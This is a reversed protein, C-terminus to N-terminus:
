RRMSPPPNVNARKMCAVRRCVGGTQAINNCGKTSCLKINIKARKMCAARKCVGGKHARSTCGKTSCLKINIKIKARKMCAARKCVGGTQAINNCGKTSCRKINIKARKMCAARRCVGGTQAINNCGKTSCLKINIKARNLCAARNCVGGRTAINSCGKTSCLKINIKIKARKMCEVRRCVGGRQAINNCGKTSCRKINIKARKMCAARKCVGGKHARSTCGKTSCLKINIKARKLCAARNCVGGRTAINSCGKTSCRKKEQQKLHRECMEENEEAYDCCGGKWQCPRLNAIANMLDDVFVEEEAEEKKSNHHPLLASLMFSEGMTLCYDEYEDILGQLPINGKVFERITARIVDKGIGVIRGDLMHFFAIAENYHADNIDPLVEELMIFEEMTDCYDRYVNKLQGLTIRGKLYGAIDEKLMDKGIGIIRSEIKKLFPIAKKNIPIKKSKTPDLLQSLQASMAANADEDVAPPQLQM